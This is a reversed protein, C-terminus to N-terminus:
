GLWEKIRNFIAPMCNENRWRDIFPIPLPVSLKLSLKRQYEASRALQQEPTHSQQVPRHRTIVSPVIPQREPTSKSKPEYNKIAMFGLVLLLSMLWFGAATFM